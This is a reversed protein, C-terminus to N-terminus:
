DKLVLLRKVLGLLCKETREKGSKKWSVMHMKVRGGAEALGSGEQFVEKSPWRHGESHFPLGAPLGERGKQPVRERLAQAASIGCPQFGGNGGM